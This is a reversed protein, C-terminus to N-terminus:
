DDQLEPEYEASFDEVLSEVEAVDKFAAVHFLAEGEYALPLNSCGIVIGDFPAKM